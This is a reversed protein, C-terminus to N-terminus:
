IHKLLESVLKYLSLEDPAKFGFMTTRKRALAECDYIIEEDLGIIKM